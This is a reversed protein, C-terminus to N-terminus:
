FLYNYCEIPHLLTPALLIGWVTVRLPTWGQLDSGALFKKAAPKLLYQSKLACTSKNYKLTGVFDLKLIYM